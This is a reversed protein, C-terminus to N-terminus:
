CLASCKLLSREDWRRGMRGEAYFHENFEKSRCLRVFRRLKRARYWEVTRAMVRLRREHEDRSCEVGFLYWHIRVKPGLAAPGRFRHVRGRWYYLNFGLMEFAPGEDEDRNMQTVLGYLM